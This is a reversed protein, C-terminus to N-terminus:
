RPRSLTPLNGIQRRALDGRLQRAACHVHADGALIQHAFADDIGVSAHKQDVAEAKAAGIDHDRHRLRPDIDQVM